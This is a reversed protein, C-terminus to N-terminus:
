EGSLSEIKLAFAIWGILFLDRQASVNKLKPRFYWVVGKLVRRIPSHKLSYFVIKGRITQRLSITATKTGGGDYKQKQGGAKIWVIGRMARVLFPPMIIRTLSSAFAIEWFLFFM